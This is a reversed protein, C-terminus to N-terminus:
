FKDEHTTLGLTANNDIEIIHKILSHAMLLLFPNIETTQSMNISAAQKNESNQKINDDTKFSLVSEM